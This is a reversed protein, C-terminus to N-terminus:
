RRRDGASGRHRHQQHEGPTTSGPGPQWWPRSCCSRRRTEDPRPDRNGARRDAGPHGDGVGPRSRQRRDGFLRLHETARQHDHSQGFANRDVPQDDRDDQDPLCSRSRRSRLARGAARSRARRRTRRRWGVLGVSGTGCPTCKGASTASTIRVGARGRRSRPPAQPCAAPAQPHHHGRSARPRASRRARRPAEASRSVRDLARRRFRASCIRASAPGVRRRQERSRRAAASASASRSSRSRSARPARRIGARDHKPRLPCHQVASGRRRARRGNRSISSGRYSRSFSARAASARSRSAPLPGTCITSRASRRIRRERRSGRSRSSASRAPRGDGRRSEALSSSRSHRHGRRDDGADVTRHDLDACPSPRAISSRTSTPGWRERALHDRQVAGRRGHLDVLVGAPEPRTVVHDRGTSRQGTSSPGPSSPPTNSPTSRGSWDAPAHISGPPAVSLRPPRVHGPLKM